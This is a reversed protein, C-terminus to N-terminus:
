AAAIIAAVIYPQSVTQRAEVPLTSDEYAFEALEEPVFEERPVRRVLPDRIGDRAIQPDFEVAIELSTSCGHRNANPCRDVIL